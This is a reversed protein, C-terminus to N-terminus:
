LEGNMEEMFEKGLQEPTKREGPPPIIIPKGPLVSGTKGYREVIRTTDKDMLRAAFMIVCGFLMGIIFLFM